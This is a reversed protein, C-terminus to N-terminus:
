NGPPPAVRTLYIGAWGAEEVGMSATIALWGGRFADRELALSAIPLPVKPTQGAEDDDWVAAPDLITGDMGTQVLTTVSPATSGLVEGLYIGDVANTYVKRSDLEGNRALFAIRFTGGARQSVSQFASSRWRPPEAADEGEGVGPPKGSYNWYVFDDYEADVGSRAVLRLKGKGTLDYVFIGQNIPVDREQYCLDTNDTEDSCISNIDGTATGTQPDFQGVNNCFDRRDRNGEQPCYLRLTKKEEGWAGWFGVFRGDYSLGEGLQNFRANGQGPVRDELGVLTTLVSGPQLPALYIGGCSPDNENDFGVFVMQDGAASPPATSGFTTGPICDGPNPIQSDSNAVLQIKASGGANNATVQRYFVGTKGTGDSYNGKFAIVGADTIAPAGPFVDFRTATAVGPVSFLDSFEPVEGLLSSGTVLPSEDHRAELKVYAGTTGARTIEEEEEGQPTLTNESNVSYTWVPPHNGRTAVADATLAIRPFSPFENFTALSWQTGPNDCEIAQEGEGSEGGVPYCTNNPYPVETDRDALTKIAGGAVAMDRYFVGSVPGRSRGTSRARFVVLANSNLSPPNYSNYFRGPYGPIQDSNNVVTNWTFTTASKSSVPLSAKNNPAAQVGVALTITGLLTARIACTLARKKM